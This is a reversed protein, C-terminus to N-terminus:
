QGHKARQESLYEKLVADNRAELAQQKNQTSGGGRDRIWAAKFGTWGNTASERMAEELSYGALGAERIYGEIATRTIAAKKDRRVKTWDALVNPCVKDVLDAYDSQAPVRKKKDTDTDTDTDTDLGNSRRKQLTVNANGTVGQKEKQLARHKAVRDASTDSAFQRKEWNLLNWSKDIFGKSIFLAKTEAIEADNLRLHFAVETEHLTVLTNSCRMCMLMVYRRQMAETIMQIKPDHAFESYMRFWPNAM